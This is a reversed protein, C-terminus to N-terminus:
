IQFVGLIDLGHLRRRPYAHLSASRQGDLQYIELVLEDDGAGSLSLEFFERRM